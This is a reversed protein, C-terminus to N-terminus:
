QDVEQAPSQLVAEHLRRGVALRHRLRRALPGVRHLRLHELALEDDELARQLVVRALGHDVGAHRLLLGVDDELLHVIEDLADDALDLTRSARTPSVTAIGSPASPAASTTNPRNM